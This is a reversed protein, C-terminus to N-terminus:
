HRFHRVKTFILVQGHENAADIVEQDRISGGPEVLATIGAQASIDVSDRFPFFGDTGLLSGQARGESKKIALEVADVRSMQGAGIGVTQNKTSLVCSNSKAHKTVKWAFRLGELEETTPKRASVVEWDETKEELIDQTQCLVGAFASRVSMPAPRGSFRILRLNKKQKLIALAEPTFEPAVIVELFIPALDKAVAEDVPRNFGVIGGFASKSDCEFARSFAQKPNDGLGVGCPNNHKIIASVPESFEAILHLTADTDLINNYSLEKGGLQEIALESFPDSYFFASQHPNEGYRLPLAKIYPKVLHHSFDVKKFQRSLYEYIVADYYTVTEFAKLALLELTHPLIEGTQKLEDTLMPYFEASPVPAVYPYNKAAARLLTVGGIDILEIMESLSLDKKINAEFPYLNCVVIDIPQIDPETRLSLIGGFIKPHLTKVRGELIEPAGTYASVEVVRVGAEKLTQGTKGTALIEINFEQLARAFEVIGTKDWVSIIARQPKMLPNNSWLNVRNSLLDAM